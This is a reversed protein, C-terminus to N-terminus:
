FQFRAAQGFESHSVSPQFLAFSELWCINRDSGWFYGDLSVIIWDFYVRYFLLRISIWNAWRRLLYIDGYFGMWSIWFLVFVLVVSDLTSHEKRNLVFGGDYYVFGFCAYIICSEYLPIALSDSDIIYNMVHWLGFSM